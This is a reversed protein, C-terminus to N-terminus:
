GPSTAQSAGDGASGGSAKTLSGIWNLLCGRAIHEFVHLFMPVDARNWTAGQTRVALGFIVEQVPEKADLRRPVECLPQPIPVGGHLARSRYSYIKQMASKFNRDSYSFQFPESPRADPPEPKFTETFSMFKATAKTIQVLEQALPELLDRCGFEEVTKYIKPMADKLQLIPAKRKGWWHAAAAELASVMLLWSLEPQGDALWVAQQYMRAVKIVTTADEPTLTPFITLIKPDAIDHDGLLQPIIPRGRVQKLAPVVRYRIETPKGLPDGTPDFTRDVPGAATRIGCSLSLLAAIEDLYDGGHYQTDDTELSMPSAHGHPPAHISVRAVIGPRHPSDYADATAHAITNILKIPGLQPPEGIINADTWIRAEVMWLREAGNQHAQWNQYSAPASVDEESM